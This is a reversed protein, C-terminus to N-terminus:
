DHSTLKCAISMDFVSSVSLCLMSHLKSILPSHLRFRSAIIETLYPRFHMERRHSATISVSYMFLKTSRIKIKFGKKIKYLIIMIRVIYVKLSCQIIRRVISSEMKRIISVINIFNSVASSKLSFRKHLNQFTNQLNM